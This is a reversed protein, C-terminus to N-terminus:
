KLFRFSDRAQELVRNIETWDHETMDRWPPTDAWATSRGDNIGLQYCQGNHFTRYLTGTTNQSMGWEGLKFVTFSVGQIKIPPQLTFTDGDPRVACAKATPVEKIIEVSFTAAEFAPSATFKNRPYALCAIAEYQEPTLADCVPHYAMCHEAPVWLYGGSEQRRAECVILADSYQFQFTGDPATFIKLPNAPQPNQVQMGASLAVLWLAAVTRM